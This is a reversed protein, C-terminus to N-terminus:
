SAEVVAAPSCGRLFIKGCAAAFDGNLTATALALWAGNYYDDLKATGM